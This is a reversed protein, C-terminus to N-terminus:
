LNNLGSKCTIISKTTKVGHELRQSLSCKLDVRFGFAPLFCDRPTQRISLNYVCQTYGRQVCDNKEVYM